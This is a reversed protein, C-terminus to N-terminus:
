TRADPGTVFFACPHALTTPDLRKYIVFLSCAPLHVCITHPKLIRSTPLCRKRANLLQKAQVKSPALVGGCGTPAHCECCHRVAVLGHATGLGTRAAVRPWRNRARM